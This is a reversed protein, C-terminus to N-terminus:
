EVSTCFINTPSIIPPSSYPSYLNIRSIMLSTYSSSLPYHISFILYHIGWFFPYTPGRYLAADPNKLDFSYTGSQVLNIFAQTYSFSDGFTYKVEGFYFKSAWFSFIIRVFLGIVVLILFIPPTNKIKILISM